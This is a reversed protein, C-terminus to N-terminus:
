QSPNIIVTNPDALGLEERAIEQVSEVSGLGEIKRNLDANEQELAAVEGRMGETQTQLNQRVWSLAALAAMSFLILAIVIIKLLAPAPRVVFRINRFPNTRGGM